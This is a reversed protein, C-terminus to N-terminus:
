FHVFTHIQNSYQALTQEGKLFSLEVLFSFGAIQGEAKLILSAAASATGGTALVDDHILIRQGPKLADVHMEIINQGYELDYGVTYRERPLKNKKRILIFPVGLRLALPMGFLFGRSELGAVGEINKGAYQNVMEDLIQNSLIPNQFIPTIDKYVIGPKPFDHVDIITTKITEELNKMNVAFIM